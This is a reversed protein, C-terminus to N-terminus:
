RAPNFAITLPTDSLYYFGSQSRGEGDTVALTVNRNRPPIKFSFSGTPDIPWKGDTGDISVFAPPKPNPSVRGRVELMSPRPAAPSAPKSATARDPDPGKAPPHSFDPSSIPKPATDRAVYIGAYVLFVTVVAATLWLLKPNDDKRRYYATLLVVVLAALTILPGHKFAESIWSM